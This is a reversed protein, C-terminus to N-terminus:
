VKNYVKIYWNISKKKTYDVRYISAKRLTQLKSKYTFIDTHNQLFFICLIILKLNQFIVIKESIQANKM